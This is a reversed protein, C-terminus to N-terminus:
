FFLLYFPPQSIIVAEYGILDPKIYGLVLGLKFWALYGEEWFYAEQDFLPFVFLFFMPWHFQVYFVEFELVSQDRTSNLGFFYAWKHRVGLKLIVTM